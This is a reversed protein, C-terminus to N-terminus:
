NPDGTYFQMTADLVPTRVLHLSFSQWRKRHLQLLWVKGNRDYDSDWGCDLFSSVSLGGGIGKWLAIGAAGQLHTSSISYPSFMCEAVFLLVNEDTSAPWRWSSTTTVTNSPIHVWVHVCWITYGATDLVVGQARPFATQIHVHANCIRYERERNLIPMLTDGM